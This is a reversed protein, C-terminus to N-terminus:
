GQPARTRTLTAQVNAAYSTDSRIRRALVGHDAGVISIVRRVTSDGAAYVMAVGGGFNNGGLVLRQSDIRFQKAMAPDRLWRLAAGFDALANAYTFTGGSQQVGRFNILLVNVGRASLAAGMGSADTSDGGWGPAILLTAIPAAKGSPFFRARVAADGSPISMTITQAPQAETTAVPVLSAILIAIARRLSRVNMLEEHRLYPPRARRTVSERHHTRRAVARANRHRCRHRGCQPGPRQVAGAM